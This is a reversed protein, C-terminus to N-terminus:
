YHSTLKTRRGNALLIRVMARSAGPAIWRIYDLEKFAHIYPLEAPQLFPFFPSPHTSSCLPTCISLDVDEFCSSSQGVDAGLGHLQIVTVTHESTADVTWIEIPKISRDPPLHLSDHFLHAPDRRYHDMRTYALASMALVGLLFLAGLLTWRSWGWRPSRRRDNSLPERGDTDYRPLLGAYEEHLDEEKSERSEDRM